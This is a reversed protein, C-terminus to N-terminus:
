RQRTLGTATAGPPPLGDETFTPSQVWEGYANWYGRGQQQVQPEAGLQTPPLSDTLYAQEAYGVAESAAVGCWGGACTGVAVITGQPLRALVAANVEPLERVDLQRAAYAWAPFQPADAARDLTSDDLECSAATPLLAALLFWHLGRHM